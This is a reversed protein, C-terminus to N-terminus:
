RDLWEKFKGAREKSVYLEETIKREPALQIKWKGNFHPTLKQVSQIRVICQRNLRFFYQPDVLHELEELTYDVIYQEKETYLVVYKEEAMFYVINSEVIPILREGQKVLFRQKYTPIGKKFNDVLEVLQDYVPLNTSQWRKYKEISQQLQEKTIPKLLYDISNFKFAQIAYHDYATIFIIPCTVTVEKLILFSEGDALHIDMFIIDPMANHKLWEISRVVKDLRDVIDVNPEISRLMRELKEVAPLEDEIILAKM